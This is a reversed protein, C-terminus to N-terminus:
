IQSRPLSCMKHDYRSISFVVFVLDELREYKYDEPDNPEDNWTGLRLFGTAIVTSESRDTIQDGALQERIFEDYPMDSNLANVVWDRYKWAFPKTQDREYGSTEAFRVVDLWHRAWREGFYPSDLLDNVLDATAAQSPNATFTAIQAESAPLGTTTWYLRRSLQAPTAPPAPTLGHKQLAVQIFADIPNSGAPFRDSWPPDIRRLPQFSWWDRGGRVDNTREYIDLRRETPFIAGTDIWHRLIEVEAAALARSEGHQPPPMEGVSIRQFLLSDKASDRAVAAGSEGGTAIALATDLALGGSSNRAQHCELCNRILIPAVHNEFDVAMKEDACGGSDCLFLCCGTIFWTSFSFHLESIM